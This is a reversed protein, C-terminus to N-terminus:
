GGLMFRVKTRSECAFLAFQQSREPSFDDMLLPERGVHMRTIAFQLISKPRCTKVAWGQRASSDVPELTYFRMIDIGQFRRLIEDIVKGTGEPKSLDAELFDDTKEKPASRATIIVIAGSRRFRDAIAKGTGKTGGTVLVRKGSFESADSATANM